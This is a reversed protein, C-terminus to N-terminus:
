GACSTLGIRRAEDNGARADAKARSQAGLAATQDGSTLAQDIAQLEKWGRQNIAIYRGATEPPGAPPPEAGLDRNLADFVPTAATLYQHFDAPTSPKGGQQQIVNLAQKAQYCLGNLTAMYSAATAPPQSVD